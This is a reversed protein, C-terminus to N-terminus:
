NGEEFLETALQSNIRMNLWMAATPPDVRLRASIAAEVDAHPRQALDAIRRTRWDRAIFATSYGVSAYRHQQMAQHMERLLYEAEAILAARHAEPQALMNNALLDMAVAIENLAEDAGPMETM